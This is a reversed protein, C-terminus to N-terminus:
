VWGLDGVYGFDEWRGWFGKVGESRKGVLFNFFVGFFVWFVLKVTGGEIRVRLIFLFM